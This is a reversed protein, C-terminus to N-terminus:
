SVLKADYHFTKAKQTQVSTSKCLHVLHVKSQALNRTLAVSLDNETM